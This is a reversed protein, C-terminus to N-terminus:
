TRHEVKEEPLQLMNMKSTKNGKIGKHCPAGENWAKLGLAHECLVPDAMSKDPSTNLSDNLKQMEDACLFALYDSHLPKSLQKQNTQLLTTQTFFRISACHLM